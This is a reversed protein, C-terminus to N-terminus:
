RPWGLAACPRAPSAGRGDKAEALYGHLGLTLRAAMAWKAHRPPSRAEALATLSSSCATDIAKSPGRLDFTWSLRNAFMSASCGTHEYGTIGDADGLWLQHAQVRTCRASLGLVHM